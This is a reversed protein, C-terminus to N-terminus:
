ATVLVAAFAKVDATAGFGTLRVPVDQVTGETLLWSTGEHHQDTPAGLGLATRWMEFAALDNHVSISLRDPYVYSLDFKAAPLQGLTQHLRALLLIPGAQDRVQPISNTTM